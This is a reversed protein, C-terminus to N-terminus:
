GAKEGAVEPLVRPLPILFATPRDMASVGLPVVPLAELSVAQPTGELVVTEPVEVLVQNDVPFDGQPLVM